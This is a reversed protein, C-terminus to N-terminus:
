TTFIVKFYTNIFVLLRNSIQESFKVNNPKQLSMIICKNNQVGIHKGSIRYLRIRISSNIYFNRTKYFIINRIYM